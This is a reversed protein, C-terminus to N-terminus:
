SQSGRSIVPDPVQFAAMSAEEKNGLWSTLLELVVVVKALTKHDSWGGEILVDESIHTESNNVTLVVRFIFSFGAERDVLFSDPEEM